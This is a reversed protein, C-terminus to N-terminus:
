TTEYVGSLMLSDSVAWTFPALGTLGTTGNYAIREIGNAATLYASVAYRNVTSNDLLFGGLSQIAAPPLGSPLSFLWAGTGYTTTTGAVLRLRVYVSKSQDSRKYAAVLTGNGLSPNTTAGTWTPTYSTWAGYLDTWRDTIETQWFAATIHQGAAPSVPAAM